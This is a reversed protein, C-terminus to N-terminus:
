QPKKLIFQSVCYCSDPPTSFTQHVCNNPDGTQILYSLTEFGDDCYGIVIYRDFHTSRITVMKNDSSEITFYMRDDTSMPRELLNVGGYITTDSSYLVVDPKNAVSIVYNNGDVLKFNWVLPTNQGLWLQSTDSNTIFYAQSPHAVPIQIIFNGEYQGQVDSKKCTWCAIVLIFCAAFLKKNM